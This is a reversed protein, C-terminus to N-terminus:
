LVDNQQKMKKKGEVNWKKGGVGDMQKNKSLWMINKKEKWNKREM